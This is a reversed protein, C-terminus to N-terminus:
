IAVDYVDYVCVYLLYYHMNSMSMSMSMGVRCWGLLTELSMFSLPFYIFYSSYIYSSHVASRCVQQLELQRLAATPENHRSSASAATTSTAQLFTEAESRLTSVRRLGVEIEERLAINRDDEDVLISNMENLIGDSTGEELGQDGSFSEPIFKEDVNAVSGTRANIQKSKRLSIYINNELLLTKDDVWFFISNSPISHLTALSFNELRFLKSL